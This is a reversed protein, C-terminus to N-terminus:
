KAWLLLVYRYNITALLSIDTTQEQDYCDISKPIIIANKRNQIQDINFYLTERKKSTKVPVNPLKSQNSM